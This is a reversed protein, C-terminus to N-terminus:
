SKVEPLLADQATSADAAADNGVIETHLEIFAQRLEASLDTGRRDRYYREFAELPSLNAPADELARAASEELSIEVALAQPLVSLVRDKLGPMPTGVSVNVKLFGPWSKFEELKRELGDLDVFANRLPKGSSLAIDHVRAPRGPTVEILNVQKSDGAEGFDLQIVSGAYEVPPTQAIQQPKHLHGLAVYQASAPLAEASITYTNTVYFKFESGSLVGGDMTTHLMMMNVANSKFGAELRHIFFNMGERYKQRWMGVDLGAELMTAAKVLRRESLFPLAAIVATGNTTEVEIAKIDPRVVGLPHVNVIKLLGAVSELRQPSDHNGAIVVSPIGLQGSRLFFEYVAREADASPNPTDFLDGAVLILDVRESQAIELIENLAQAIEPTRDVGRLVRGAHWDATHLIRV